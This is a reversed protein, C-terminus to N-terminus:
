YIYSKSDPSFIRFYVSIYGSLNPSSHAIQNLYIVKGGIRYAYIGNFVHQKM